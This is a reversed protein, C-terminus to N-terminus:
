EEQNIIIRDADTLRIICEKADILMNDELVDASTNTHDVYDVNLIDNSSVVIVDSDYSESADIYIEFDEIVGYQINRDTLRIAKIRGIKKIVNGSKTRFTFSIVDDKYLTYEKITSDDFFLKLSVSISVEVDKSVLMPM